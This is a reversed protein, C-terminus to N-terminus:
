CMDMVNKSRRGVVSSNTGNLPTTSTNNTPIKSNADLSLAPYNTLDDLRVGESIFFKKQIRTANAYIMWATYLVFLSALCAVFSDMVICCAFLVTLLNGTLGSAFFKFILDRESNIGEVAEDMSGDKGRLAKGSGWITTITALSVCAINSCISFIASMHLLGKIYPDTKEPISIEILCTTTFGALVAAQTAM